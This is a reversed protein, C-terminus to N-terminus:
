ASQAKKKARYESVFYAAFIGVGMMLGYVHVTFPGISFLDNILFRGM